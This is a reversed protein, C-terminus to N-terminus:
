APLLSPLFSDELIASEYWFPHLVLFMDATSAFSSAKAIHFFFFIMVDSGYIMAHRSSHGEEEEKQNKAITSFCITFDNFVEFFLGSIALTLKEKLRSINKTTIPAM